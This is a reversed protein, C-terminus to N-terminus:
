CAIFNKKEKRAESIVSLRGSNVYYFERYTLLTAPTQMSPSWSPSWIIQKLLVVLAWLSNYLKKFKVPNSYLMPTRDKRHPSRAVGGWWSITCARVASAASAWTVAGLFLFWYILNTLFALWPFCRASLSSLWWSFILISPLFAWSVSCSPLCPLCLLHYQYYVNWGGVRVEEMWSITGHQLRNRLCLLQTFSLLRADRMGLGPSLQCCRCYWASLRRPFTYPAAGGTRGGTALLLKWCCELCMGDM